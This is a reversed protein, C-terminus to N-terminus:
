RLKRRIGDAIAEGVQKASARTPNELYKPLGDDHHLDLKEHVIGARADPLGEGYRIVAHLGKVIVRGSHKLAGSQVPVERQSAEFVIEAGAKVGDEGGARVAAKAKAGNWTLKSM